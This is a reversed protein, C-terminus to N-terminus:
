HGRGGGGRGGEGVKGVVVSRRVMEVPKEKGSRQTIPVACDAAKESRSRKTSNMHPEGTDETTRDMVNGTSVSVGNDSRVLAYKGVVRLVGQSSGLQAIGFLVAGFIWTCTERRICAKLESPDTGFIAPPVTLTVRLTHSVALSDESSAAPSQMGPLPSRPERRGVDEGVQTDGPAQTNAM